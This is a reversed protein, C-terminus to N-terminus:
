PMSSCRTRAVWKHANQANAFCRVAHGPTRNASDLIHSLNPIAIKGYCSSAGEISSFKGAACSTCRDNASGSSYTGAACSICSSQKKNTQYQGSACSTCSTPRSVSPEKYKGAPCDLCNNKEKQYKYKGTPCDECNRGKNYRGLAPKCKRRLVKDLDKARGGKSREELLASLAAADALKELSDNELQKEPSADHHLSKVVSDTQLGLVLSLGALIYLGRM